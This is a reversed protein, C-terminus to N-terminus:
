IFPSSIPLAKIVRTNLDFKDGNALVHTTMNTL